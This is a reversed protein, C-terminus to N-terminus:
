RLHLQSTTKTPLTVNVKPIITSKHLCYVLGYRKTDKPRKLKGQWEIPANRTSNNIDASNNRTSSYKHSINSQLSELYDMEDIGASKSFTSARSVVRNHSRTFYSATSPQVKCAACDYIRPSCRATM